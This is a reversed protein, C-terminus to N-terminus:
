KVLKYYERATLSYVAVYIVIFVLITVGTSIVFLWINPIQLALLLKSMMNFAAAMHLVAVALPLFFVLLIQSRISRKVETLSMGVKQMIQYRESDEYGETIQKYYIILVTALLFLIGLFIGVFLLGGYIAHFDASARQKDDIHMGESFAKDNKLEKVAKQAKEWDQADIDAGIMHHRTFLKEGVDEIIAEQAQRNAVLVYCSELMSGLVPVGAFDSDGDKLDLEVNGVQLKDGEIIRDGGVIAENEKLPGYQAGISSDALSIVYIQAVDSDMSFQDSPQMHNEETTGSTVAYDYDRVGKVSVGHSELVSQLKQVAAAAEDKTLRQASEIQIDNPFNNEVVDDCGVQLSITTSVTVLVMTSLICISALGAANRKMRYIMGSVATFHETKYYFGKKRRLMKLIAISGTIFLLYTGAIVLLVAIFFALLADLPSRVNIAIYYGVGTCALGLVTLIWKTKPEKEGQRSGALLEMPNSLRIRGMNCLLVAGFIIGFVVVCLIMADFSFQYKMPLTVQLLKLLLLYVLKGFVVGSLLGVILSAASILFTELFFVRGIHRKAMGLINYLALEKKRQKILFSNTYFLFIASFFGVVWTGFSLLSKLSQGGFMNTVDPNQVIAMMIYFIMICVTCTLMYPIYNKANKKINNIALSGYFSKNVDKM